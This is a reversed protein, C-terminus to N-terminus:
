LPASFIERFFYAGAAENKMERFSLLFLLFHLLKANATFFKQLIAHLTNRM